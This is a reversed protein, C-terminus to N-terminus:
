KPSDAAPAALRAELSQIQRQVAAPNPTANRALTLRLLELAQPLRGALEEIRALQGTIRGLALLDPATKSGEAGVWDRLAARLHNAARNRDHDSEDYLRALEIEIEFSHPNSRLGDRLVNEAERVRGIERRLWYAAVTYTEVRHPDLGASLRLWPLIERADGQGLHSHTSIALRRGFREFVDLPPRLSMGAEHAEAAERGAAGSTQHDHPSSSAGQALWSPYYGRHFYVDAQVFMEDALLSRAEGFLASLPGSPEERSWNDARPQVMTALTVAGSIAAALLISSRPPM